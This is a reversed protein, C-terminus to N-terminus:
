AGAGIEQAAAAPHSPLLSFLGKFFVTSRKWGDGVSPAAEESPLPGPALMEFSSGERM